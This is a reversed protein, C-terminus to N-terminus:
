PQSAAPCRRVRSGLHPWTSALRDPTSRPLALLAVTRAQSARPRARISSERPSRASAARLVAGTDFRRRQAVLRVAAPAGFSSSNVFAGGCGRTAEKAPSLDQGPDADRLGGQIQANRGPRERFRDMRAAGNAPHFRRNIGLNLLMYLLAVLRAFSPTHSPYRRRRMLILGLLPFPEPPDLTAGVEM